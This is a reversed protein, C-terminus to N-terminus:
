WKRKIINFLKRWKRSLEGRDEERMKNRKMGKEEAKETHLNLEAPQAEVMFDCPLLEVFLHGGHAPTEAHAVADLLLFHGYSVSVLEAERGRVQFQM